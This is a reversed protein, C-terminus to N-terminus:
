RKKRKPGGTMLERISYKPPSGHRANWLSRGLPRFFRDMLVESLDRINSEWPRAMLSVAMEPSYHRTFSGDPNKMLQHEYPWEPVDGSVSQGYPNPRAPPTGAVNKARSLSELTNAKILDGQAKENALRIRALEREEPTQYASIARSINQGMNNLKSGLSEKQEQFMAVPAQGGSAPMIGLAALPHLGARQADQSRYYMQNMRFDNDAAQQIQAQHALFRQDQRSLGEQRGGFFSGAAGALNAGTNLGSLLLSIQDPSM